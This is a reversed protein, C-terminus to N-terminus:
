GRSLRMLSPPTVEGDASLDVGFPQWAEPTITCNPLGPYKTQSFPDACPALESYDGMGMQNKGAANPGVMDTLHAHKQATVLELASLYASSDPNLM